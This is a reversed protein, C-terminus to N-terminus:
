RHPEPKPESKSSKPERKSPWFEQRLTWYGPQGPRSSKSLECMQKLLSKFLDNHHAAINVGLVQLVQGTTLRHEKGALKKDLFAKLIEEAILRDSDLLEIPLGVCNSKEAAEPIEPVSTLPTQVDSLSLRPSSRNALASQTGQRDQAMSRIVALQRLGQLIDESSVTSSRKAISTGPEKKIVTEQKLQKVAAGAKGKQGTWTPESIPHASRERASRKLATLARQAIMNASQRVIKRDLLTQEVKDHNFSAKIGQSDYLTQLIANGEDQTAKSAVHQEKAPLDSISKMVETTEVEFEGLDALKDIKRFAAKYKVKLALLDAKSFNPPPPPVEFLDSLDNWKFFQRQRPDQLVKQSLFHKYVQRQYIKEEVTGTLVLRYVQVERKQGIRWARERAQVDTMPNWDPDFILVRDAGIINLGVGGVRTTLLMAFYDKNANFEDILKLRKKVATKGDIRLYTYGIRSMWMQLVELMQVTQVFILTRHRDRHWLKMIEALVKMKGSKEFHWMDDPLEDPSDELGRLLLDPHNCLKRLVSISFFVAGLAKRDTSATKAKRVQETELFQVYLQYQEPTLHCFLVQEQKSPLKLVDMCEAKTRRLICPETLERLAMACQYAAAVKAETAGVLNGSEIPHAFEELFVPLTGLRGPCVFDFLSWLEQLHNQIPSGSLIIRHPTSFRKSAITLSAHPNRIKQGEDLVLMVWTAELLADCAIRMTEYSTILVGHNSSASEIAERREQENMQHMVCVRLPPYWLHLENRWQSILTAPCVILVGGARAASASGLSTNQIRMKQLVGSHHLVALYAAIQVTKGLGMEDALIGGMKEKHLGWLWKVCRHQYPYLAQWLWRPSRLGEAVQVDDQIAPSEVLPERKVVGNDEEDSEEKVPNGDEDVQQKPLLAESSGTASRKWLDQRRQFAKENSDDARKAKKSAGGSVTEPRRKSIGPRAKLLNKRPSVLEGERLMARWEAPNNEKWQNQVQGGRPVIQNVDIYQKLTSEGTTEQELPVLAESVGPDSQRRRKPSQPEKKVKATSSSKGPLKSNRAQKERPASTSSSSGGATARWLDLRFKLMKAEEASQESDLPGSSDAAPTPAPNRHFRSLFEKDSLTAAAKSAQLPLAPRRSRSRLSAVAAKAAAVADDVQSQQQSSDRLEDADDLDQSGALSSRTRRLSGWRSPAATTTQSGDGGGPGDAHLAPTVGRGSAREEIGQVEKDLLDRQQLVAALKPDDKSDAKLRNELLSVERNVKALEARKHQLEVKADCCDIVSSEVEKADRVQVGLLGALASVESERPADEEELVDEEVLVDEEDDEDFLDDDDELAGEEALDPASKSQDGASSDM